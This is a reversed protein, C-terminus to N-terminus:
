WQETYKSTDVKLDHETITFTYTYSHGAEWDVPTLTTSVNHAFEEGWDIWTANVTINGAFAQPVMLIDVSQHAGGSYSGIPLASPDNSFNAADGTLTMVFDVTGAPTLNTWTSTTGNFACDGGTKLGKFTISNIKIDPHNPALQFKIRAFPHKFALAVQGPTPQLSSNTGAKDQDIALAYVFEQLSSGQGATVNASSFTMPLNACTFQASRAISYTLPSTIYDPAPVPMIYAFFDLSGSAPWYHKGDSFEWHDTVWNVTTPTFYTTTTNAHYVACNFSSTLTGTPFLTARTGEMMKSVSANMHIESSDDSTNSTSNTDDDSCASLLMVVALLHVLIRTYYCVKLKM